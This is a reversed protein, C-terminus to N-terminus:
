KTRQKKTDKKTSLLSVVLQLPSDNATSDELTKWRADFGNRSLAREISSWTSSAIDTSASTDLSVSVNATLEVTLQDLVRRFLSFETHFADSLSPSGVVSFICPIESTEGFGFKAKVGLVREVFEVVAQQHERPIRQASADAQPEFSVDLLEGIRRTVEVFPVSVTSLDAPAEAFCYDALDDVILRRLEIAHSFDVGDQLLARVRAFEKATEYQKRLAEVKRAFM